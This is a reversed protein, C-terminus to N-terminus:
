SSTGVMLVAEETFGPALIATLTQLRDGQCDEIEFGISECLTDNVYIIKRNHVVFVGQLSTDFMKKLLSIDLEDSPM